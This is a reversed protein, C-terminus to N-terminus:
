RKSKAQDYQNLAKERTITIEDAEVQKIQDKEAVSAQTIKEVIGNVRLVKTITKFDYLGDGRKEKRSSTTMSVVTNPDHPNFPTKAQITRKNGGFMSGKKKWDSEWYDDHFHEKMVREFNKYPDHITTKGPQEEGGETDAVKSKRKGGRLGAKRTGVPSAIAPDPPPAQVAVKKRGAKPSQAAPRETNQSPRPRARESHVSSDLDPVNSLGGRGISVPKKRGAGVSAPRPSYVRDVPQGNVGSLSYSSSVPRKVSTATSMEDLDPISAVGPNNKQTPKRRGAGASAARPSFVRDVPRGNSGAMSYSSDAANVSGRTPRRGLSASRRGRGSSSLTDAKSSVSAASMTSRRSHMSSSLPDNRSASTRRTHASQSLPDSPRRRTNEKTMPTSAYSTVPARPDERAHKGMPKGAYRSHLDSDDKPYTPRTAKPSKAAFYNRPRSPTSKTSKVSQDSSFNSAKSAKSKSPDSTRRFAFPSEFPPPPMNQANSPRSSQAARQGPTRLGGPGVSSSRPTPTTKQPPPSATPVTNQRKPAHKTNAKGGKKTKKENALKWDYRKVPDTVVDNAEAIKSFMDHAKEREEETQQRDPHYKLALKRYAKKIEEESADYSVGLIEYPDDGKQM